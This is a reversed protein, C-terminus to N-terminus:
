LLELDTLVTQIAEYDNDNHLLKGECKTTSLAIMIDPISAITIGKKRLSRYINSVHQFFLKDMPLFIIHFASLYEDIKSMEKDNKSGRLIEEYTLISIAIQTNDQLITKFINVKKNPTGKMFDILVSTDVVVLSNVM